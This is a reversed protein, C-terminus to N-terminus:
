RAVILLAMPSRCLISQDSVFLRGPSLWVPQVFDPATTAGAGFARGAATGWQLFKIIPTALSCRRTPDRRIAIEAEDGHRCQELFGARRSRGRGLQFDSGIDVEPSCADEIAEAPKSVRHSLDTV